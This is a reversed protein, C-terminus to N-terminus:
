KGTKKIQIGYEEELEKTESEDMYDFAMFGYDVSYEPLNLLAAIKRHIDESFTEESTLIGTFEAKNINKYEILLKDMNKIQPQITDSGEFYDPNSNYFFIEQGNRYIYMIFVDSDHNTSYVATTNLKKSLEATLKIGYGLNQEDIKEEYITCSNNKIIYYATIGMNILVPLIKESEASLIVINSYFSGAFCSFVPIVLLLLVIFYKKM